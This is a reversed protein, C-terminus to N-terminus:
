ADRVRDMDTIQKEGQHRKKLREIQRTWRDTCCKSRCVSGMGLREEKHANENKQKKGRWLCFRYHNGWRVWVAHNVTNWLRESCSGAMRCSEAGSSFSAVKNKECVVLRNRGWTAMSVSATSLRSSSVTRRVLSTHPCTCCMICLVASADMNGCTFLNIIKKKIHCCYNRTQEQLYVKGEQHPPAEGLPDYTIRGSAVEPIGQLTGPSVGGFPGVVVGDDQSSSGEIM